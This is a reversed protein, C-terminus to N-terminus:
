KQQRVLFERESPKLVVRRLEDVDVHEGDTIRVAIQVAKARSSGAQARDQGRAVRVVRWALNLWEAEPSIRAAGIPLARIRSSLQKELDDLSSSTSGSALAEAIERDLQGATKIAHAAHPELPGGFKVFVNAPDRRAPRTRYKVFGVDHGGGSAHQYTSPTYKISEAGLRRRLIERNKESRLFSSAERATLDYSHEIRTDFELLVRRGESGWRGREGEIATVLKNLAIGSGSASRMATM